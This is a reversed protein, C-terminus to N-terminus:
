RTVPPRWPPRCGAPAARAARRPPPPPKAPHPPPSPGGRQSVPRVPSPVRDSSSGLAEPILPGRDCLTVSTARDSGQGVRDFLAFHFLNRATFSSREFALLSQSRAPAGGCGRRGLWVGRQSALCRPAQPPKRPPPRSAQTRNPPPHTFRHLAWGLWRDLAPEQGAGGARGPWLVSGGAVPSRKQYGKEQPRGVLPQQLQASLPHTAGTRRPARRGAARVRM